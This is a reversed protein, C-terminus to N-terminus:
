NETHDQIIGPSRRRHARRGAIVNVLIVSEVLNSLHFVSLFTRQPIYFFDAQCGGAKKNQQNKKKHKVLPSSGQLFSFNRPRPVHNEDGDIGQPGITQATIGVFIDL